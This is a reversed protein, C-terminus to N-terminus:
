VSLELEFEAAQAGYRAMPVLVVRGWSGDPLAFRDGPKVTWPAPAELTGGLLRTAAGNGAQVQSQRDAFTVLVDVSPQAVPTGDMEVDRYLVLAVRPGLAYRTVFGRAALANIRNATSTGFFPQVM